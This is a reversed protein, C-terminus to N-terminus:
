FAFKPFSKKVKFYAIKWRLILNKNFNKSKKIKLFADYKPKFELTSSICQPKKLAVENEFFVMKETM